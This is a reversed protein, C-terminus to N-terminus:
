SVISRIEQQAQGIYSAGFLNAHNLLHYLNYIRKREAYGSELPWADEYARYFAAPFGGFFETFALDTERDGYYCAPDFVVPTGDELFATNGSWLDGHLLSPSPQHSALIREVSALLPQADPMRIGNKRAIELQPALRRKCFFDAWNEAPDNRQINDGIFNDKPWGFAQQGCRHLDALHRGMASWAASDPQSFRMAEMVLFSCAGISGFGHPEPVRISQTARIASLGEAEAEFLAAKSAQNVKVFFSHKADRVLYAQHICGGSVSRHETIEFTDGCRKSIWESLHQRLKHDM